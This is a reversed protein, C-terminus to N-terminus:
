SFLLFPSLSCTTFDSLAVCKVESCDVFSCVLGAFRLIKLLVRTLFLVPVIFFLLIDAGLYFLLSAFTFGLRLRHKNGLCCGLERVIFPAPCPQQPGRCPGLRGGASLPPEARWGRERRGRGPGVRALGEDIWAPGLRAARRPAERRRLLEGPVCARALGGEKGRRGRARKTRARGRGCEGTAWWWVSSRRCRGAIAAGRSRRLSLGRPPAPGLGASRLRARGLRASPLPASGLRASRLAALLAPAGAAGGRREALGPRPEAGRFFRRASSPAPYRM